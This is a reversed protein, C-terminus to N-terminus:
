VVEVVARSYVCGFLSFSGERVIQVFEESAFDKSSLVIGFDSSPHSFKHNPDSRFFLVALPLGVSIPYHSAACIQIAFEPFASDFLSSCCCCLDPHRICSLNTKFNHTEIVSEVVTLSSFYSGLSLLPPM